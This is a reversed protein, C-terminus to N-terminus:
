LKEIFQKVGEVDARGFFSVAVYGETLSAANFFTVDKIGTPYQGQLVETFEDKIQKASKSGDLGRIILAPQEGADGNRRPNGSAFEVKIPERMGFFTKGWLGLICNRAAEPEEFNVFAMSMPSMKSPIIRVSELHGFKEVVKMLDRRDLNAPVHPFYLSASHDPPIIPQEGVNQFRPGGGVGAPGAGGVGGQRRLRGFEDYEENQNFKNPAFNNNQSMNPPGGRERIQVNAGVKQNIFNPRNIRGHDNEGKWRKAQPGQQFDRNQFGGGGDSDELRFEMRANPGLVQAVKTLLKNTDIM